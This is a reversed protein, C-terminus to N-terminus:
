RSSKLSELVDAAKRAIPTSTALIKRVIGELEEGSAPELPMNREASFALLEPDSLAAAMAKRLVAIREQPVGSPAALTRGVASSSAFLDLIQKSDDDRGLEGITPLSPLDPHRTLGSLYVPRVSGDKLRSGFRMVLSAIGFAGVMDVEGRDMALLAENASRYGSILKFKAGALRSLLYPMATSSGTGGTGGVSVERARVDDFTRIGSKGGAIGVELNMGIRGIWHFRGADIGESFGLMTDFPITQALVGLTTGDKPAVELLYRAAKVGGAGPMNQVIVTPQGPLHRKLFQAILRAYLDYSGAGYSVVINIQKGRFYDAANDATAPLPAAAAFALLAAFTKLTTM